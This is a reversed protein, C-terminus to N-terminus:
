STPCPIHREPPQTLNWTEVASVIRVPRDGEYLWYECEEHGSRPVDGHWDRRPMSELFRTGAHLRIDPASM